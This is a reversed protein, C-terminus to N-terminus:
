ADGDADDLSRTSRAETARTALQDDPPYAVTELTLGGPPLVPVDGARTKGAAVSDLWELSRRGSGVTVVAGVLSRVMSQCFADAELWCEITRSPDAARAVDFRRLHRITTAGKAAKVANPARCFPAFDHLGILSAAAQAMAEVDLDQDVATVARRLAPFGLSQGDWLRYCYTRGTASFRADFGEPAPLLARLVIDDPLRHALIRGLDIYLEPPTDTDLHAVQGRAHVGADTRGAVTLDGDEPLRLDAQAHRIEDTVVGQVTRLGPQAAWGHFDTGDYAVNLRYRNM